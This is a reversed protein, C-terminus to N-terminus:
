QTCSESGDVQEPQEVDIDELKSEREPHAAWEVLEGPTQYEPSWCRSPIYGSWRLQVLNHNGGYPMTAEVRVSFYEGGSAAGFARMVDRFTRIPESM